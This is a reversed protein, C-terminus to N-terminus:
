MWHQIYAWIKPINDALGKAAVAVTVKGFWGKLGKTLSSKDETAAARHQLARAEDLLIEDVGLNKLHEYDAKDLVHINNTQNVTQGSAVNNNNGYINNTIISQAKETNETSMKYENELNPFQEDLEILTNLLRQKTVDIIQKVSASAIRRYGSRIVGYDRDVQPKYDKGLIAVQLASLPIQARADKLSQYLTDITSIPQLLTHYRFVENWDADEGQYYAPFDRFERFPYEVTLFMEGKLKRYDPLMSDKDDYGELEKSLWQRFVDNKLKAAILKARTLAQSVNITDYAIDKILDKIM